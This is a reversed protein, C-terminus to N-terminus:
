KRSGAVSKTSARLFNKLECADRPDKELIPVTGGLIFYYGKYSGSKEITEFDVDKPVIMLKEQDRQNNMCVSCIKNKQSDEIFFRFCDLCIKIHKKLEKITSALDSLYADNRGLLFFAFRKAQRPGIGPFDSFIETLKRISDM